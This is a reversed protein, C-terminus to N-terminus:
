SQDKREREIGLKKRARRPKECRERAANLELLKAEYETYPANKRLTVLEKALRAYLETAEAFELAEPNSPM